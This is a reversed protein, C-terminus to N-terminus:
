STVFKRSSCGPPASTMISTAPKRGKEEAEQLQGPAREGSHSTHVSPANGHMAARHAEITPMHGTEDYCSSGCAAAGRVRRGQPGWRPSAM